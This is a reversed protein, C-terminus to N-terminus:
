VEVGGESRCILVELVFFVKKRSVENLKKIIM